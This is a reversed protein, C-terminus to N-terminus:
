FVIDEIVVTSNTWSINYRLVILECYGLKQLSPGVKPSCFVTKSYKRQKKQMVNSHKTLFAVSLCLIVSTSTLLIYAAM